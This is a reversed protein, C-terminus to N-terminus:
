RAPPAPADPRRRDPETDLGGIVSPTFSAGSIVWRNSVDVLPFDNRGSRVPQDAASKAGTRSRTSGLHWAGDLNLASYREVSELIVDKSTYNVKWFTLFTSLGSFATTSSSQMLGLLNFTGFRSLALISPWRQVAAYRRSSPGTSSCFPSSGLGDNLTATWPQSSGTAQLPTVRSPPHPCGSRTTSRRLCGPWHASSRRSPAM